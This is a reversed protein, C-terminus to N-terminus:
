GPWRWSLMMQNTAVELRKRMIKASQCAEELVQSFEAVKVVMGKVNKKLIEIDPLANSEVDIKQVQRERSDRTRRLTSMLKGCPLQDEHDSDCSDRLM